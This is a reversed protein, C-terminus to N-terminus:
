NALGADTMVGFFFTPDVTVKDDEHFIFDGFFWTYGIGIGVTPSVVLNGKALETSSFSIPISFSGLLKAKYPTNYYLTDPWKKISDPIRRIGLSDPFTYKRDILFKTIPNITDQGIAISSVFVFLILIKKM